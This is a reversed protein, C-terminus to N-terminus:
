EASVQEPRKVRAALLAPLLAILFTFFVLKPIPPGAAERPDRALLFAYTVCGWVGTALLAAASARLLLPWRLRRLFFGCVGGLLLVIMIPFITNM